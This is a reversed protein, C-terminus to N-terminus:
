KKLLKKYVINSKTKLELIYLGSELASLNLVSNDLKLKHYLKKGNLDFLQIGTIEHPSKITLSNEFPNPYIQVGENEFNENVSLNTNFYNYYSTSFEYESACAAAADWNVSWTMVGRLDPHAGNQLTYNRGSFTTGLRMYDLAKIAESPQIYGGAPAAEPCSPIGFMIKSAPLGDFHFGISAVDFGTILMDSMSTLFDPTAQSYAQGDLANVSGTNYLQVMVLDLEDRLNHIVPLFAGATNSYTSQGVQVYFTEPACTLIFSSGYHQKIEKFADVVNKLKPFASIGTYSFDTLAGAEFNMSGGEFDLDIGDFGYEDVIDKLGKVFENKEAVTNLEVHGNQGGISAIIPIGEERLSNIDDKLLQPDFTGNTLYRNSNITLQPTYGNQGLTEIFSYMIVNYKTALMDNFYLFPASANEWSHSYGLIINGSPLPVFQSDIINLTTNYTATDGENDTATIVVSYEQYNTPTFNYSYANDSGSSMNAATAGAISITVTSVSGDSDTVTVQIPINQFGNKQNLTTNTPSVWTIKPAINPCNAGQCILNFEVTEEVSESNSSEAIVKFTHTTGYDSDEPSWSGIYVDGTNSDSVPADDVKFVVSSLTTVGDDYSLEVLAELPVPDQYNVTITTQNPKKIEIVPNVPESNFNYEQPNATIAINTLDTPYYTVQNNEWTELKLTSITIYGELETKTYFYEGDSNTTKTINQYPHNADAWPVVLSVKAGSVATAGQKIVGYILGLNEKFNATSNNNFSNFTIETPAFIVSNFSPTVTYNYGAPVNTITYNGDVDTTTTYTENNGSVRITVGQLANNAATVNGSISYSNRTATLEQNTQNSNLNTYDISTFSYYDKEAVLTYDLNGILSNLTFNGNAAVVKKLEKNDADKLVIDINPLLQGNEKVTGQISYIQDSGTITVQKDSDFEQAEYSLSSPLFSYGSYTYSLNYANYGDKDVFKVQGNSDSTLTELLVDNHDKLKVEVGSILSDDPKKFSLTIDYPVEILSADVADLLSNDSERADQSLEWIMVGGLQKALAYKVKIDISEADDYSIFKNQTANYLYPVKAVDDWYRVWGAAAATSSVALPNSTDLYHHTNTGIGQSLDCFEISGSHECNKVDWTGLPAQNLRCATNVTRPATEYLGPNNPDVGTSAVGEFLKGYFPLGM